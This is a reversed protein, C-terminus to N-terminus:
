RRILAAQALRRSFVDLTSVPPLSILSRGDQFGQGITVINESPNTVM